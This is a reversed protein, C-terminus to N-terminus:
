QIASKESPCDMDREIHLTVWRERRRPNVGLELEARVEFWFSLTRRSVSASVKHKCFFFVNHGLVTPSNLGGIARWCLRTDTCFSAYTFCFSLCGINENIEEIRDVNTGGIVARLVFKVVM